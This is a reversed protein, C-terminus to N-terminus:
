NRRKKGTRRGGRKGAIKEGKRLLQTHEYVRRAFGEYLRECNKVKEVAVKRLPVDLVDRKEVKKYWQKLKGLEEENEEVEAFIFNRREIENEIEKFFDDCKKILEGYEESRSDSFVKRLRDEEDDRLTKGVILLTEGKYAEIDSMLKRLDNIRDASHPLIWLSQYNAAGLKKLQRWAYVRAKSPQTPLTYSFFLWKM